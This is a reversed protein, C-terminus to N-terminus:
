MNYTCTLDCIRINIKNMNYWVETEPTEHQYFIDTSVSTKTADPLQAGLPLQLVQLQATSSVNKLDGGVKLETLTTQVLRSRFKVTVGDQTDFHTFTCKMNMYEIDRGHIATRLFTQLGGTKVKEVTERNFIITENHQTEQSPKSKLDYEDIEGNSYICNPKVPPLLTVELLYFLYKGDIKLPWKIDVQTEYITFKAPNFIKYTHIIEPGLEEEHAAVSPSKFYSSSNYQVIGPNSGDKSLTLSGNVHIPIQFQVTDENSNSNESSTSINVTVDFFAKHIQLSEYFKQTPTLSLKFEEKANKPFITGILCAINGITDSDCTVNGGETAPYSLDGNANSIQM